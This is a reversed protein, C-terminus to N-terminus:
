IDQSCKTIQKYGKPQIIGWLFGEEIGRMKFHGPFSLLLRKEHM